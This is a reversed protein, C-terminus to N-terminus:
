RHSVDSDRGRVIRPSPPVDLDRFGESQRVGSPKAHLIVQGAGFSMYAHLDSSPSFSPPFSCPSEYDGEKTKQAKDLRPKITVCM